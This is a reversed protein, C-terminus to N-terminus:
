NLFSNVQLIYTKFDSFNNRLNRLFLDKDLKDYRHVLMNRTGVIPAIKNAFKENLVKFTGLIKFTSQLDDVAGFNGERIIHVNIDIMLDVIQQFYREIAPLKLFDKKVTEIEEGFVIPELRDVCDSLMDIKKQLFIKDIM